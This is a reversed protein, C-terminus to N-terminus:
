GLWGKVRNVGADVDFSPGKRLHDAWKDPRWSNAEEHACVRIAGNETKFMFIHTQLPRLWDPAGPFPKPGHYGVVTAIEPNEKWDTKYGSLVSCELRLDSINQLSDALDYVTAGPLPLDAVFEAYVAENEASIGSARKAIADVLRPMFLRRAKSWFPLFRLSLLTSGYYWRIAVLSLVLVPALVEPTAIQEIM